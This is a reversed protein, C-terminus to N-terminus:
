LWPPRHTIPLQDRGKGTVDIWLTILREGDYHRPEKAENKWGSLTSPALELIFCVKKPPHGAKTLQDLIMWWDIRAIAEYKRARLAM